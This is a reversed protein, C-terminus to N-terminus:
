RRLLERYEQTLKASRAEAERLADFHDNFSDVDEITPNPSGSRAVQKMAPVVKAVLEPSADMLSQYHADAERLEIEKAKILEQKSM